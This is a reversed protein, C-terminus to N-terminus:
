RKVWLEVVSTGIPEKSVQEYSDPLNGGFGHYTVVRTGSPMLDLKKRLTEIYGYFKDSHHSVKADIRISKEVNEYFPNFIYFGTYDGFNVDTMNRHIFTARTAKLDELAFQAAKHLDEREEVGIFHAHVTLAAVLCFKGCGSGVDLIRDNEKQALLEAARIAVEVPTWHVRSLRRISPSYLQDFRHDSVRRGSRLDSSLKEIIQDRDLNARM